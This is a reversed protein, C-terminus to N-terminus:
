NRVAPTEVPLGIGRWAVYLELAVFEDSLPAYPEGRVDNICGQFREHLPILRSDRLRYTPFGNTHGQSLYDARLFKGHNLEHCNACSMDLLGHRTYYLEKGKDFWAKMPGDVRPSVPMGRSQHRVYATMNTLEPSRFKWADAKMQETRCLNIQQELNVPRGLKENWKPMAAGVGKMSKSAEAHCSACSKGAAGEVKSWLPEGAETELFGPNQLDDDQLAQTEKTRFHYGSIIDQLPHDKSPAKIGKGQWAPHPLESQAVAGGAVMLSGAAFAAMLITRVNPTM